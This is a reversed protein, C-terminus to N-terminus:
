AAIPVVVPQAKAYEPPFVVQLDNAHLWEWIVGVARLNQGADPRDAAAFRVGAGNIESGSPIDISMAAKTVDARELSAAKPLVEHLLVWGGTFGAVAEASMAYGYKANWAATARSLLARGEPLLGAPNIDQSPKDSAFLGVADAGLAAGFDTRCYASSTGVIARVKLHRALAAHQFAIGDELYSATLILDPHDGDVRAALRNFDASGADYKITDVINLALLASEDITGYGVAMGYDDGEFLIVARATRPDLGLKPIITDHAFRAANRGLTSGTAVTRLVGPLGRGTVADAVAGTELYTVGAASARASAPLSITSGYSGVVVRAGRGVVADVASAAQNASPSDVADIEVKRGRVGGDDNVLQAAMQLGALEQSGDGGQNGSLPYVAGIRIADGAGASSGCAPAAIAALLATLGMVAVRVQTM